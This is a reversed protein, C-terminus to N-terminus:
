GQTATSTPAATLTATQTSDASATVTPEAPCGDLSANVARVLEAVSVTGGGACDGACAQAVAVAPAWALGTCALALSAIVDRAMRAFSAYGMGRTRWCFDTM